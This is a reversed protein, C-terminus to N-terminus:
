PGVERRDSPASSAAIKAIAAPTARIYSELVEFSGLLEGTQEAATRALEAQQDHAAKWDQERKQAEALREEWQRTIRDLTSGPILWGRWLAVFLAALMSGPTLWAPDLGTM